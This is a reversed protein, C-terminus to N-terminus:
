TQADIDEMIEEIVESPQNLSVLEKYRLEKCRKKIDEPSPGMYRSYRRAHTDRGTYRLYGGVATPDVGLRSAITGIMRGKDFQRIIM